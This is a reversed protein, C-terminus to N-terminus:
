NPVGAALLVTALRKRWSADKVPLVSSYRSVTFNPLLELMRKASLKAEEGRGLLGFVITLLRHAGTYNPDIQIAHRAAALADEYRGCAVHAAGTGAILASMGPDLPSLRMAREFHIIAEDGEGVVSLVMGAAFRVSFLNSSLSLARDIARLAEDYRFGLVRFGLARYGLSGLALGAMSLTVPNDKHDALAEEAFRLGSKVDDAEGYGDIVRQICAFAGLAKAVSFGPDMALARRILSSSGDKEAKSTGPLLGPLAQILFDYAQLNSTPKARIRELEARRVGPDVAFVVSETIRDQLEFVDELTGEFRDAWIHRGSEAEILQGAVRIRNEARRISGELVYRVGLERGVQRIDVARGKYVFSSNRAIVFLIGTRALATLIDDVMGDAFYEQEPDGSMNTFPLVAISPRDPAITTVSPTLTFRYGRGAVTAVAQAGLLKRLASIQVTLNNEEVVLGPWVLAMLEHKGVVRDSHEILALLLDFARTGLVAAQGHVLLQRQEPLVEFHEFRHSNAM